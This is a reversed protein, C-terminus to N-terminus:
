YFYIYLIIKVDESNEEEIKIKKSIHELYNKIIELGRKKFKITLEFTWYIQVKKHIM